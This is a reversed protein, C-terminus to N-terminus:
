QEGTSQMAAEGKQLRSHLRFSANTFAVPSPSPKGRPSTSNSILPLVPPCAAVQAKTARTQNLLLQLNTALSRSARGQRCDRQLGAAGACRVSCMHQRCGARRQQGRCGSDAHPALRLRAPSEVQMLQAAAVPRRHCPRGQGCHHIGPPHTAAAATTEAITGPSSPVRALAQKRAEPRFFGAHSYGLRGGSKGM